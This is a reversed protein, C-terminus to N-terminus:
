ELTRITLVQPPTSDPPYIFSAQIVQQSGPALDLTLLPEVVQGARHWLHIYRDVPEGQADAYQLRVTGRFFPHTLPPTRFRLAGTSLSDEKLPTELSLTVTKTAQTPNFLPLTLDYHVGYNGHAAYATDPYRAILPATQVQDTGLRGGRLTSIGYAIAEGVPPITLVPSGDDALIGSWTSGMQVGAVRGYILEGSQQEPPTPVKDRPGALSGTHLLTRWEALTPQREKGEHDIPAYMALSAAYVPQDSHAQIFTSRGNVPRALNRVPMSHNLLMVEEGPPIVLQEPIDTQHQGRMVWDVARSGPGAHIAGTPNDAQPPQEQFPAERLEYSAAPGIDVTATESSANRLLIGVYLTKSDPPTHSFHHAFLNFHGQFASNLHAEPHAKGDPPLTSLLIGETKVWEPSNSNFMPVMDLQGPLSRVDASQNLIEVPANFNFPPGAPVLTSGGLFLSFLISGLSLSQRM